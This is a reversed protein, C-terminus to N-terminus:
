RCCETIDRDPISSEMADITEEDSDEDALTTSSSDSCAVIIVSCNCVCSLIPFAGPVVPVPDNTVALATFLQLCLLLAPCLHLWLPLFSTVSSLTLLATAPPSPALVEPRDVAAPTVVGSTAVFSCVCKGIVSTVLPWWFNGIPETNFRITRKWNRNLSKGVCHQFDCPSYLEDM